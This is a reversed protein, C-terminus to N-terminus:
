SNDKSLKTNYLVNCRTMLMVTPLQCWSCTRVILILYILYIIVLRVKACEATHSMGIELVPEHSLLFLTGFSIKTGVM